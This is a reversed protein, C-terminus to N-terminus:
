PHQQAQALGERYLHIAQEPSRAMVHVREDTADMFFASIEHKGPIVSEEGEEFGKASALVFALRKEM